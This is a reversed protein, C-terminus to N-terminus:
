ILLIGTWNGPSRIRWFGIDKKFWRRMHIGGNGKKSMKKMEIIQVNACRCIQVNADFVNIEGWQLLGDSSYTKYV